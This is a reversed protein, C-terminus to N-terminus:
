WWTMIMLTVSWLSLSTTEPTVGGIDIQEVAEDMPVDGKSITNKFPYLNCVVMRINNLKMRTMDEVDRQCDTALIGGHVAPHLTKVRGGLIEPFGTVSSVDEIPIGAERVRKATGGSGLLKYGCESLKKAFSVLGTKDSVSLIAFKHCDASLKMKKADHVM